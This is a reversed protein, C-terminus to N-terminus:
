QDFPYNGKCVVAAVYQRLSNGDESSYFKMPDVGFTVALANLCVFVGCISADVQQPCDVEKMDWAADMAEGVAKKVWDRVALLQAVLPQKEQGGRMLDYRVLLRSKPFAAALQWHNGVHLPFLITDITPLTRAEIGIKKASAKVDTAKLDGVVYSNVVLINPHAMGQGRAAAIIKLFTEIVKDNLWGEPSTPTARRVQSTPIITAIDGRTIEIGKYNAVVESLDTNPLVQKLKLFWPSPLSNLQSKLRGKFVPLELKKREGARRYASRIASWDEFSMKEGSTQLFDQWQQTESMTGDEIRPEQEPAVPMTKLLEKVADLHPDGPPRPFTQVVDIGFNSAILEIYERAQKIEDLALFACRGDTIPGAYKNQMDEAWKRASSELGLEPIKTTLELLLRSSFPYDMPDTHQSM